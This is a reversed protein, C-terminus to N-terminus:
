GSWVPPGPQTYNKPIPYQSFRRDALDKLLHFLHIFERQHQHPHRAGTLPFIDTLSLPSYSTCCVRVYGTYVGPIAVLPGPSGSGGNTVNIQGCSIQLCFCFVTLAGDRTRARARSLSLPSVYFQAGGYTSAVHLAIQLAHLTLRQRSPICTPSM